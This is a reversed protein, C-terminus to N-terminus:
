RKPEPEPETVHYYAARLRCAIDTFPGGYSYMKVIAICTEEDLAISNGNYKTHANLNYKMVSVM